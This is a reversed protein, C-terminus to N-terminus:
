LTSWIPLVSAAALTSFSGAAVATDVIDMIKPKADVVAVDGKAKKTAKAMALTTTHFTRPASPAFGSASGMLSALSLIITVTQLM